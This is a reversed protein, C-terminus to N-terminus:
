QPAEKNDRVIDVVLSAYPQRNYREIFAQKDLASILVSSAGAGIQPEPVIADPLLGFKVMLGLRGKHPGDYDYGEFTHHIFDVIGRSKMTPFSVFEDITQM